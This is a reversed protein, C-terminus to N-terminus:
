NRLFSVITLIATIIAPVGVIIGIIWRNNKSVGEMVALRKDTDHAIKTVETIKTDQKDFRDNMSAFQNNMSAFRDNMSAFQDNMDKKLAILYEKISFNEDSMRKEENAVNKEKHM